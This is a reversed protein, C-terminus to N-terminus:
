RKKIIKPMSQWSLALSDLTHKVSHFGWDVVPFSPKPTGVVRVLRKWTFTRTFWEPNLDTSRYRINKVLDKITQESVISSCNGVEVIDPDYRISTLYDGIHLWWDLVWSLRTLEWAINPLNGFDLGLQRATSPARKVKFYVHSTVYVECTTEVGQTMDWLTSYFPTGWTTTTTKSSRATSQARRLADSQESKKELLAIIDQISYVIPMIGYRYEMWTSAVADGSGKYSGAKKTWQKLSRRLAAFPSRLMELTERLEALDVGLDYEVGKMDSYAGLLSQNILNEEDVGPCPGGTTYWSIPYQRYAGWNGTMTHELLYDGSVHESQFMSPHENLVSSKTYINVPNARFKGAKFGEGGRVSTIQKYTGAM